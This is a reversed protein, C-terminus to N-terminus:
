LRNSLNKAELFWRISQAVGLPGMSAPLVCMKPVRRESHFAHEPDLLILEIEHRARHAKREVNLEARAGSKNSCVLRRGDASWAPAFGSLADSVRELFLVAAIEIQFSRNWNLDSPYFPRDEIWGFSQASQRLVLQDGLRQLVGIGTAGSNFRIIVVRGILKESHIASLGNTGCIDFLQM